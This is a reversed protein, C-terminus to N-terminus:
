DSGTIKRLVHSNKSTEAHQYMTYVRTTISCGEGGLDKGWGGIAM